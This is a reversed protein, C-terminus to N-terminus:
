LSLLLTVIDSADLDNAPPQCIRKLTDVQYRDAVSFLEEQHFSPQLKGTYLFFLFSEFVAADMDQVIVQNTRSEIMDNQFMAGFVPSRAAVIAKHASFVQGAVVFEIDTFIKEKAAQWLHEAMLKDTLLFHYNDVTERVSIWFTCTVPTKWDVMEYYFVQVSNKSKVAQMAMRTASKLTTFYVDIIEFGCSSRTRSIFYLIYRALRANYKVGVCCNKENELAFMDSKTNYMSTTWECQFTTLKQHLTMSNHTAM